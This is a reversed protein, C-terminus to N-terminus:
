NAEIITSLIDGYRIFRLRKFNGEEKKGIFVDRGVCDSLLVRDGEKFEPNLKEATTQAYRGTSVIKAIKVEGDKWHLEDEPLVVRGSYSEEVELEVLIYEGIPTFTSGATFSKIKSQLQM